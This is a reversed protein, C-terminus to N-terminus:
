RVITASTPRKLRSRAAPFRSDKWRAGNFFKAADPVYQGEAKLWEPDGGVRASRAILHAKIAAAHRYLQHKEFSARASQKNKKRPYLAWVEEFPDAIPLDIQNQDGGGEASPQTTRESPLNNRSALELHAPADVL